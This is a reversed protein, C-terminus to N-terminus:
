SSLQLQYQKPTMGYYRKFRRNLHSSDAFGSAQAVDVAPTGAELAKRANNIRCSLVYQHPTIGFQSRFLRIFHFKSLNAAKAIDDISIEQHLNAQIFDKARLLLKDARTESAIGKLQGSLRVLSQAVQFVGSEHEMKSSNEDHILQSLNIVQHRLIPDNLVTDEVRLSHTMDAGLAQFSPKLEDPHLYLMVYELNTDGGSHGDHVDDPNFLIINGPGSKHFARSAFFEQSGQLTVGISFEEHAHKDYSFDSMNASLTTVTDLHKSPTFQFHNKKPM